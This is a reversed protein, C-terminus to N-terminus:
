YQAAEDLQVLQNMTEYTDDGLRERRVVAGHRVFIRTTVVRRGVAGPNYVYASGINDRRRTVVRTLRRPDSRWLVRGEVSVTSEAPRPSMIAIELRDGSAEARIRMPSGSRNRLRLDVGPYAVAADQGPPVYHPAFVHPHRELVEMGALLAANYLTTSTQCVGGGYARVMEGDYSVPAKVYGQDLSWSRVVRNFSFAGGAPIVVGNIARAARAANYRQAPTRASLATAYGAIRMEQPPAASLHAFLAAGMGATTLVLVASGIGARGLLTM